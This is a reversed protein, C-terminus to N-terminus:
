IRVKKFRECICLGETKQERFEKRPCKTDDSKEILCPCFGGNNFVAVTVDVYKNTNPNPIIKLDSM